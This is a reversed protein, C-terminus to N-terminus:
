IFQLLVNLCVVLNYLPQDGYGRPWWTKVDHRELLLISPLSIQTHGFSSCRAKVESMLGFVPLLAVLSSLSEENGCFLLVDVQLRWVAGSSNVSIIFM